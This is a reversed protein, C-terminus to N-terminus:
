HICYTQTVMGGATLGVRKGCISIPNKVHVRGANRILHGGGRGREGDPIELSENSKMKRDARKNNQRTRNSM